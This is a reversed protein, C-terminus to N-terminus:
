EQHGLWLLGRVTLLDKMSTEMGFMMRIQVTTLHRIRQEARHATCVDIIYHKSRGSPQKKIAWSVAGYLLVELVMSCYVMRKTTLLFTKIVFFQAVCLGLSKLHGGLRTRCM